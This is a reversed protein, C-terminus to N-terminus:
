ETLEEDTHSEIWDIVRYPDTSKYGKLHGESKRITVDWQNPSQHRSEKRVHCPGVTMEDLRDMDMLRNLLTEDGDSTDDTRERSYTGKAIERCKKCGAFERLFVQEGETDVPAGCLTGDGDSLHDTTSKTRAIKYTKDSM